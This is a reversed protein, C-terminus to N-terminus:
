PCGGVATQEGEDEDLRIRLADEASEIPPRRLVSVIRPEGDQGTEEWAYALEAEPHGVLAFVEVVEERVLVGENEVRALIPEVWHVPAGHMRSVHRRLRDNSM